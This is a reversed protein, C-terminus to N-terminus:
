VVKGSVLNRGGESNNSKEAYEIVKLHFAKDYSKRNGRSTSPQPQESASAESAMFAM